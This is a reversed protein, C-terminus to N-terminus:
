VLNCIGDALIVRDRGRSRRQCIKMFVMPQEIHRRSRKPTRSMSRQLTCQAVLVCITCWCFLRCIQLLTYTFPVNFTSLHISLHGVATMDYGQVMFIDLYDWGSDLRM